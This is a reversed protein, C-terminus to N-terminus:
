WSHEHTEILKDVTKWEFLDLVMTRLRSTEATCAYAMKTDAPTPCANSRDSIRGMTDLIANKLLSVGLQDALIYLRILRYYAPHPGHLDEHDLSHTYLWQVFYEFDDVRAEPLSCASSRSEKFGYSPNLAAAFFSSVASLLEQHAFFQHGKPGVTITVISKFLKRPTLQYAEESVSDSYSLPFPPSRTPIHSLTPSPSKKLVGSGSAPIASSMSPVRLSRLPAYGSTCSSTLCVTITTCEASLDHFHLPSGNLSQDYFADPSIRYPFLPSTFPAM